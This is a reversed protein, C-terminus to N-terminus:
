YEFVVLLERDPHEDVLRYGEAAQRYPIRRTIFGHLDLRPLLGMVTEMRRNMDWRGLSPNPVLFRSCVIQVRNHHFEEGLFLDSGSGQYYSLTIVRGNYGAARTAEHLAKYSGSCELVVDPARGGNLNRIEVAVDEVDRPNIVGAAAGKSALRLRDPLLDVGIVRQAGSMRSLQVALQGVIGLGFVAVTEGLNISADLIGQFTVALLASTVGLVPDELEDPIRYVQDMDLVAATSHYHFSFVNDGPKVNRVNAGVEAVESVHEYSVGFPYTVAPTNTRLFLGSAEDYDKAFFPSTGRYISMETGASIGSAIARVLVQDKGVPPLQETVFGVKRPAEIVIRVADM